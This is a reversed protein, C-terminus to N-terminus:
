ARRAIYLTKGNTFCALSDLCMRALNGSRSSFHHFLMIKILIIARARLYTTTLSMSINKSVSSVWATISAYAAFPPPLAAKFTVAVEKFRYHEPPLLRGGPDDPFLLSL